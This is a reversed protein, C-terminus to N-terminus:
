NADDIYVEEIDDVVLEHGVGGANAEGRGHQAAIHETDVRVKVRGWVFPCLLREVEQKTIVGDTADRHCFDIEGGGGENAEGVM